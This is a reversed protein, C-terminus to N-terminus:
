NRARRRAVYGAAAAFSVASLAYTSPEPVVEYASSLTSNYSGTWSSTTVNPDNLSDIAADGGGTGSTFIDFNITDGVALGMSSLSFAM